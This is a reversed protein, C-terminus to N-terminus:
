KKNHQQKNPGPVSYHGQNPGRKPITLKGQHTNPTGILNDTSALHNGLFVARLFSVMALPNDGCLGPRLTNKPKNYQKM